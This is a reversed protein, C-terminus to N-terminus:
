LSAAAKLALLPRLYRLLREVLRTPPGGVWTPPSTSGDYIGRGAISRAFHLHGSTGLMVDGCAGNRGFRWEPKHERLTVIVENARWVVQPRLLRPKPMGVCYGFGTSYTIRGPGDVSSLSWSVPHTEAPETWAPSAAAAAATASLGIAIISALTGLKGM